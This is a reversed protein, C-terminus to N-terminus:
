SLRGAEFVTERKVMDVWHHQGTELAADSAAVMSDGYSGHKSVIVSGRQTDKRVEYWTTM